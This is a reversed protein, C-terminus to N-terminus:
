ALHCNRGKRRVELKQRGNLLRFLFQCQSRFVIATYVASHPPPSSSDSAPDFRIECFLAQKPLKLSCYNDRRYYYYKIVIVPTTLILTRWASSLVCLGGFLFGVNVFHSVVNEGKRTVQKARKTKRQFSVQGSERPGERIPKLSSLSLCM